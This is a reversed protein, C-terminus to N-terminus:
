LPAQRAPRGGRTWTHSFLSRTRLDDLRPVIVMNEVSDKARRVADAHRDRVGLAAYNFYRVDKEWGSRDDLRKCEKDVLNSHTCVLELLAAYEAEAWNVSRQHAIKSGSSGRAGQSSTVQRTSLMRRGVTSAFSARFIDNRRFWICAELSTLKTKTPDEFWDLMGDRKLRHLIELESM